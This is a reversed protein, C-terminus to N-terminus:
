KVLEGAFNGSQEHHKIVEIVEYRKNEYIETGEIRKQYIKLRVDLTDGPAIKIHHESFKKYFADDIVPAPIRQGHWVFEWKRANNELIARTIQLTTTEIIPKESDEDDINEKEIVFNKFNDYPIVIKPEDETNQMFAISEIEKDDHLAKMASSIKDKFKTQKEAIEKTAQYVDKHIVVREDAQQVIVYEPTVNVIVNPKTAFYHDYIFSALIGLIFGKVDNISFLNKANTFITKIVAKFSGSGLDTILVEVDYGPNIQLNAEKLADAISVLTSALTYANIAKQKTGFYLIIESLEKEIRIETMSVM